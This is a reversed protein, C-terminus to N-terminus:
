YKKTYIQYVQYQKIGQSPHHRNKSHLSYFPLFNLHDFTECRVIMYSWVKKLYMACATDSGLFFASECQTNFPRWPLLQHCSITWLLRRTRTRRTQLYMHFPNWLLRPAVIMSLFFDSLNPSSISRVTKLSAVSKMLATRLFSRSIPWTATSLIM